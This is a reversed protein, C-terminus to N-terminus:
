KNLAPNSDVTATPQRAPAPDAAVPASRVQTPLILVEVRRNQQKGGESANSAVPRQDAYGLVGIRNAGVKQSILAEAVSIARHSSLYWNNKHGASITRPNSVPANDTHGAVLLEYSAAAPSNLIAAFKGIAERAQPTLSADGVAFTLDSKFKVMGRQQDFEVIGPNQQAFATLENALPAPLPGGAGARAVAEAYKRNLEALQSQLDANQQSLNAVLGSSSSGNALLADLQSKLTSAEARAANADANARGLQEALTDREIRLSTYKEQSVCGFSILSLAAVSVIHRMRAM